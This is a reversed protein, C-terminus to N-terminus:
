NNLIIWKLAKFFQQAYKLTMLTKENMRFFSKEKKFYGCRWITSIRESVAGFENIRKTELEM